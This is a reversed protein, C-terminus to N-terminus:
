KQQELELKYKVEGIFETPTVGTSEKFVRYFTSRSKFGSEKVVSEIVHNDPIVSLLEKSKKIRYYNIFVYFNEFGEDKIIKSLKYKAVELEMALEQLSIEPNLYLEKKIFKDIIKESEQKQEAIGTKDVDAKGEYTTNDQSVITSIDKQQLAHIFFFFAYFILFSYVLVLMFSSNYIGLLGFGEFFGEAPIILVVWKIWVSNSSELLSSNNKIATIYKKFLKYVLLPYIIAQLFSFIRSTVALINHHPNNEWIMKMSARLTENSQGVIEHAHGPVIILALIVNILLPIFHWLDGRNLFKNKVSIKKLYLYTLPILSVKLPGTLYATWSIDLNFMLLAPGISLIGRLFFSCCIYFLGKRQQIISIIFLLLAFAFYIILLVMFFIAVFSNM